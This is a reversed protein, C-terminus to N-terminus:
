LGDFELLHGTYLSALLQTPHCRSRPCQSANESFIQPLYTFVLNLGTYLHYVCASLRSSMLLMHLFALLVMKNGLVDVDTLKETSNFVPLFVTPPKLTMTNAWHRLLVLSITVSLPPWVVPVITMVLSDGQTTDTSFVPHMADLILSIFFSGATLILLLFYVKTAQNAPM